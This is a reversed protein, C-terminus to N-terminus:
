KHHIEEDNYSETGRNTQSSIAVVAQQLEDILQQDTFKNGHQRYFENKM